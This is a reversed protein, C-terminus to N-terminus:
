RKTHLPLFRFCPSPILNQCKQIFLILVCFSLKLHLFIVRIILQYKINQDGYPKLFKWIGFELNEGIKEGINPTKYTFKNSNELTFHKKNTLFNYFNQSPNSFQPAQPSWSLHFTFHFYM